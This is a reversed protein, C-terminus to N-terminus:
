RERIRLALITILNTSEELVDHKQLLYKHTLGTFTGDSTMKVYTVAERLSRHNIKPLKGLCRLKQLLYKVCRHM